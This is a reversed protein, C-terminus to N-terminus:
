SMGKALYDIMSQLIKVDDRAYGLASNCRSCLLGRVCKGCARMGLCCAHDHDVYLNDSRASDQSEGCIACRHGQAEAMVAYEELTIGYKALNWKRNYDSIKSARSKRDEAKCGRCRDDFGDKTRRNKTFQDKPKSLKCHNCQKM